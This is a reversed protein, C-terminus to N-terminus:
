SRETRENRRHSLWDRVVMGAISRNRCVYLIIGYILVVGLAILVSAAVSLDMVLSILLGNCAGALIIAVIWVRYDRYMKYSYEAFKREQEAGKRLEEILM